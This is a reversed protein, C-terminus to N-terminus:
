RSAFLARIRSAHTQVEYAVRLGLLAAQRSRRSVGSPRAAARARCAGRGLPTVGSATSDLGKSRARPVALPRAGGPGRCPRDLQQPRTCSCLSLDDVTAAVGDDNHTRHVAPMARREGAPLFRREGGGPQGDDLQSGASWSPWGITLSEATTWFGCTTRRCRATRSTLKSILCATNPRRAWCRRCSLSRRSGRPSGVGRHPAPSPTPHDGWASSTARACRCTSWDDAM